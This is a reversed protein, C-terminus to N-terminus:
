VNRMEMQAQHEQIYEVTKDNFAGMAGEVLKGIKKYNQDALAQLVDDHYKRMMLINDLHEGVFSEFMIDYDDKMLDITYQWATDEVEKDTSSPEILPFQTSARSYNYDEFILPRNM